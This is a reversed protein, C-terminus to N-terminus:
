PSAECSARSGCIRAVLSTDRPLAPLRRDDLGGRPLRL